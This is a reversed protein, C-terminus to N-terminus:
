FKNSAIAVIIKRADAVSVKNDANYDVYQMMFDDFTESKAIAVVVHRADAVSVKGDLNVDGKLSSYVPRKNKNENATNVYATAVKDEYWIYPSERKVLGFMEGSGNPNYFNNNDWVVPIIGYKACKKIVANAYKVREDDNGKDVAGMEGMIVGIGKSLYNKRLFDFDTDFSKDLDTENFEKKGGPFCFSQPSYSHVSLILHSADDNPMKFNKSEMGLGAAYTSVMLYRVANNSGTARVADVYTQAIKTIAVQDDDISSWGNEASRTENYGEFILREGYDKFKNAINTWLKQFAKYMAETKATDEKAANGKEAWWTRLWSMEHHTNIICYMDRDYIWDVVEKVRNIYVENDKFEGSFYGNEDKSMAGCWTVPLRITDFGKAKISDILGEEVKPCGWATEDPSNIASDFTNGINFGITLNQTFDYSNKTFEKTEATTNFTALSTITALSLLISVIKKFM